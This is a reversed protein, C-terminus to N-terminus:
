FQDTNGRGSSPTTPLFSPYPDLPLVASTPPVSSGPAAGVRFVLTSLVVYVYETRVECLVCHAEMLFILLHISYVSVVRQKLQKLLRWHTSLVSTDWICVHLHNPLVRTTRVELVSRRRWAQVKWRLHGLHPEVFPVATPPTSAGMVSNTVRTAWWLSSDGCIAPHCCVAVEHWM